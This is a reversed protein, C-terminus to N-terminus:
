RRMRAPSFIGSQYLKGFHQDLQVPLIRWAFALFEGYEEGAQGTRPFGSERTCSRAPQHFPRVNPAQQVAIDHAAMVRGFQSKL